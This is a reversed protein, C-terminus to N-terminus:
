IHINLQNSNQIKVVTRKLMVDIGYSAASWGVSAIHPITNSNNISDHDSSTAITFIEKLM